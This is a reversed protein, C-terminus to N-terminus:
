VADDKRKPSLTIYAREEVYEQLDCCTLALSVEPPSTALAPSNGRASSDRPPVDHKLHIRGSLAIPAQRMRRARM